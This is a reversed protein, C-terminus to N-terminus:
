RMIHVETHTCTLTHTRTQTCMRTRAHAAAGVGGKSSSPSGAHRAEKDRRDGKGLRVGKERGREFSGHNRNWVNQCETREM